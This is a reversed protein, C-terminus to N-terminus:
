GTVSIILVKRTNENKVMKSIMTCAEKHTMPKFGMIYIKDTKDNIIKIDYKKADPSASISILNNVIPNNKSM